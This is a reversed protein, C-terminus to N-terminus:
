VYQEIIQSTETEIGQVSRRQTDLNKLRDDVAAVAKKLDESDKGPDIRKLTSQYTGVAQDTAAVQTALEDAWQTGGSAMFAGSLVAENQLEHSLNASTAAMEALQEVRQASKATDLRQSVGIGALVVLLLVPAFLVAILKTGVKMNKLM